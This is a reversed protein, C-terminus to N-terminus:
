KTPKPESIATDIATLKAQAKTLGADKETKDENLKAIKDEILTKRAEAEEPTLTIIMEIDGDKNKKYTEM